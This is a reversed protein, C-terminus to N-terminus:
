HSNPFSNMQSVHGFFFSSSTSINKENRLGKRSFSSFPQTTGIEITKDSASASAHLLDIRKTSCIKRYKSIPVDGDGSHVYRCLLSTYRSLKDIESGKKLFGFRLISNKRMVQYKRVEYM